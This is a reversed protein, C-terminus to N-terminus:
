YRNKLKVKNNIYEVYSLLFANMRVIELNTTNPDNSYEEFERQFDIIDINVVSKNVIYGIYLWSFAIALIISFFLYGIYIKITKM